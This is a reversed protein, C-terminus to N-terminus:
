HEGKFIGPHTWITSQLADSVFKDIRYEDSKGSLKELELDVARVVANFDSQIGERKKTLSLAKDYFELADDYRGVKHYAIGLGITSSASIWEKDYYVTQRQSPYDNLLAHSYNEI